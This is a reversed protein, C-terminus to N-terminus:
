GLFTTKDPNIQSKANEVNQDNQWMASCDQAIGTANIIGWKLGSFIAKEQLKDQTM